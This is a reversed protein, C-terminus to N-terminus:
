AASSSAQATPEAEPAGQPALAARAARARAHYPEPDFRRTVWWYHATSGCWNNTIRGSETKYWSHDPAAWVTTALTRQTRADDADLASRRIDLYDLDRDILTRIAGLIYRAQCEIMFIISNHGLNTNPGYMLFLNPFGAVSIGRYARAGGAWEEELMHGDRGEIRMPALFATSQFGTAFILADVPHARGDKTVVADETLHAIGDGVVAVNDRALAQFYDDSILIRKGGIPYDPLLLARLRADAVTETLHSEAIRRTLWTMLRNGRFMPFRQELQFWIWWRYLRALLPIHTFWWQERATYARDGRPLMWNASRQFITLHEVKPAIQPIFQIASAANGIVGVRRGALEYGHNWRASHFHTGRFRELGEVRPLHPRNLQGVASVLVDAVIAEGAATRLHWTGTADDFRAAAIETGFRVHPLIDYKRACDEMYQQIEAQPSWKRSWDTKQEFSFCYLFSPVDCAAGPYTNERWTGGIRDSKEYITFADIGARKLEIGLCLGSFGSGIIAVRRTTHAANSM